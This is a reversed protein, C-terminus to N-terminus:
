KIKGLASKREIEALLEGAKRMRKECEQQAEIGASIMQAKAREKAWAYHEADVTNEALTECLGMGQILGAYFALERHLEVDYGDEDIGHEVLTTYYNEYAQQVANRV